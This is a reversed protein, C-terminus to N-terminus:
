TNERLDEWELLRTASVDKALVRGLVTELKDYPIGSAPKKLSLHSRELVTGAPLDNVLALSRGFLDRMGNLESAIKDKSFPRNMKWFADRAQSVHTVENFTLSAKADPGFMRRDFVVHVEVIAAGLAMANLAPFVTGSHDSLGSPVGFRESIEAMVPLGVAEMPVPYMSTCQLIADSVGQERLLLHAWELEKWPSMGSSLIVPKRTAAISELLEQNGIDGSGIKWAPVDLNELLEVAELSFPTSMFVLGLENAHDRLGAWQEATFEMRKWYDFRNTDQQSFRVRFEDNESSEAHAIHTQFKVADAGASAIADIYSHALGLSGDHAQAVEAILFCPAGAGIQRDSIKFSELVM